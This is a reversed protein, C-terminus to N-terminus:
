FYKLRVSVLIASSSIGIQGPIDSAMIVDGEPFGLFLENLVYFLVGSSFKGEVEVTHEFM